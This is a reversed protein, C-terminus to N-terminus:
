LYRRISLSKFPLTQYKKFAAAMCSPIFPYDSNHIERAFELGLGDQCENYYDIAENLEREAMPHFSYKM